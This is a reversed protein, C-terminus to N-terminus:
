LQKAPQLFHYVYVLSRLQFQSLTTSAVSTRITRTLMMANRKRLFQHAAHLEVTEDKPEQEASTIETTIQSFDDLPQGAGEEVDKRTVQPIDDRRPGLSSSVAEPSSKKSNGDMQTDSDAGNSIRINNNGGDDDGNEDNESYEDDDDDRHKNIILRQTM